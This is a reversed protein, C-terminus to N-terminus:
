DFLPKEYYSFEKLYSLVCDSDSDTFVYVSEFYCVHEALSPLLDLLDVKTQLPLNLMSSLYDKYSKNSVFPTSPCFRDVFKSLTNVGRYRSYTFLLKVFARHAYEVSEFRCFKNEVVSDFPLEGKWHVDFRHAINYPNNNRVGRTM